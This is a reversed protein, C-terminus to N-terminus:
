IPCLKSTSMVMESGVRCDGPFIKNKRGVACTYTLSISSMLSESAAIVFHLFSFCNSCSCRSITPRRKRLGTMRAQSFYQYLMCRQALRPTNVPNISLGALSIQDDNRNEKHYQNKEPMLRQKSTYYIKAALNSNM